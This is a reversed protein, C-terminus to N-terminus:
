KRDANWGPQYGPTGNVEVYPAGKDVPWNSWSDYTFTYQHGGATKTRVGGNVLTPDKLNVLYGRWTTDSCVSPPPVGGIVPINGPTFISNYFSCANRLERQPGVKAAIWVGTAYVMSLRSNSQVPWILGAIASTYTVKDYNFTGDTRFVTNINNGQMFINRVPNPVDGNPRQAYTIFLSGELFIAPLCHIIFLLFLIKRMKKIKTM